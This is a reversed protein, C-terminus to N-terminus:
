PAASEDSFLEVPDRDRDLPHLRYRGPQVLSVWEGRPGIIDLPIALATSYPVIRDSTGITERYITLRYLNGHADRANISHTGSMSGCKLRGTESGGLLM